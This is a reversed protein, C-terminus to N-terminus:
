GLMRAAVAAQRAAIREPYETPTVRSQEYCPLAGALGAAGQRGRRRAGAAGAQGNRANKRRYPMFARM